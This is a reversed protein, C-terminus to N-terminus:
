SVSWPASKGRRSYPSSMKRSSGPHSITGLKMPEWGRLPICPYWGSWGWILAASKELRGSGAPRPCMQWTRANRSASSAARRSAGHPAALDGLGDRSAAEVDRDLLEGAQHRADDVGDDHQAPETGVGVTHEREGHRQGPEGRDPRAIELH